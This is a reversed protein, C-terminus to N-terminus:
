LLSREVADLRFISSRRRNKKSAVSSRRRNKKSAVSFRRVNKKSTVTPTNPKVVNETDCNMQTLTSDVAPSPIVSQYENKCNPAFSVFKGDQVRGVSCLVVGDKGEENFTSTGDGSVWLKYVFTRTSNPLFSFKLIDIKMGSEICTKVTEMWEQRNYTQNQITVYFDEAFLNFFIEEEKKGFVKPRGDYLAFYERFKIQFLSRATGDKNFPQMLAIKNDQDIKVISRLVSGFFDSGTMHIKYEARRGCDDDRLEFNVVECKRGAQLQGQAFHKLQSITLDNTKTEGIVCVKSAFLQDMVKEEAETLADRVVGNYM